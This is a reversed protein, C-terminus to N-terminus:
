TIDFSINEILYKSNTNSVILNSIAINNVDIDSINIPKKADYNKKSRNEQTIEFM